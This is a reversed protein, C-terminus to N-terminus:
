VGKPLYGHLLCANYLLSLMVFLRESAYKFNESSLKDLGPSKGSKLKKIAECIDNSTFFSGEPLECNYLARDVDVKKSLDNSTNLLGQFYNKWLNVIQKKGTVGDITQPLPPSYESNVKNLSLGCM